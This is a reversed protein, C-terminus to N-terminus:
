NSVVVNKVSRITAVTAYQKLAKRGSHGSFEFFNLKNPIIKMIAEQLGLQSRWREQFEINVEGM